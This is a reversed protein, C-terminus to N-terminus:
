KKLCHGGLHVFGGSGEGDSHFGAGPLLYGTSGNHDEHYVMGDYTYNPVKKLIKRFESFEEPTFSPMSAYIKQVLTRVRATDDANLKGNDIALSLDMIGLAGPRKKGTPDDAGDPRRHGPYFIGLTMQTDTKAYAYEDMNKLFSINEYEIGKERKAALEYNEAIRSTRKPDGAVLEALDKEPGEKCLNEKYGGKLYAASLTCANTYEVNGLSPYFIDGKWEGGVPRKRSLSLSINLIEELSKGVKKLMNITSVPLDIKEEIETMKEFNEVMM